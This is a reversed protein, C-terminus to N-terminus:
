GDTAPLALGYVELPRPNDGALGVAVEYVCPSHPLELLQQSFLVAAVEGVAEQRQEEGRRRWGRRQPAPELRHMFEHALALRRVQDDSVLHPLGLGTLFDVVASILKTNIEVTRHKQDYIAFYPYAFPRKEVVDVLKLGLADAYEDVSRRGHTAILEALASEALQHARGLAEAVEAPAAARFPAVRRLVAAEYEAAPKALAREMLPRHSRDGIPVFM